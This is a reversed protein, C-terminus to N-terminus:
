LCREFARSRDKAASCQKPTKKESKTFFERIAEEKVTKAGIIKIDGARYRAGEEIKAVVAGKAKSWSVSIKAGPFGNYLYGRELCDKLKTLYADMEGQPHAALLYDQSLMLAKCLEDKTVLETGSFHIKNPDSFQGVLEPQEKAEQAAAPLLLFLCLTPTLSRLM